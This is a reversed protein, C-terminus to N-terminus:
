RRDDHVDSQQRLTRPAEQPLPRLPSSLAKRAIVHGPREEHVDAPIPVSSQVVPGEDVAKPM